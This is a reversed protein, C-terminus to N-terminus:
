IRITATGSTLSACPLNGQSRWRSLLSSSCMNPSATSKLRHSELTRWAISTWHHSVLSTMHQTGVTYDRHMRLQIHDRAVDRNTHSTHGTRDQGTGSQKGRRGMCCPLSSKVQLVAHVSYSGGGARGEPCERGSTNKVLFLSGLM